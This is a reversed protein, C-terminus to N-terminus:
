QNEKLLNSLLIFLINSLAGINQLVVGCVYLKDARPTEFSYILDIKLRGHEKWVVFVSM